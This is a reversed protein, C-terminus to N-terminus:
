GKSCDNNDDHSNCDANGQMEQLIEHIEEDTYGDLNPLNKAVEAADFHLDYRYYKYTYPYLSSNIEYCEFRQEWTADLVPFGKWWVLFEYDCLKEDMGIAVHSHRKALLGEVDYIDPATCADM